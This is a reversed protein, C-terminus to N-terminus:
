HCLTSKVFMNMYPHEGESECEGVPSIGHMSDFEVM